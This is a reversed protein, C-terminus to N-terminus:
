ATIAARRQESSAARYAPSPARQSAAPAAYWREGCTSQAYSKM